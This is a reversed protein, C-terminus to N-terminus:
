RLAANMGDLAADGPVLDADNLANLPVDVTELADHLDVSHPHVYLLGTIVQL